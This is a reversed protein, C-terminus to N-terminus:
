NRQFTIRRDDKAKVGSQRKVYNYIAYGGYAAGAILAVILGIKLARKTSAEM